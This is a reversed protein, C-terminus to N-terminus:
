PRKSEVYKAGKFQEIDLLKKYALVIASSSALSEDTFPYDMGDFRFLFTDLPKKNDNFSKLDVYHSVLVSSCTKFVEIVLESIKWYNGTVGCAAEAKLILHM